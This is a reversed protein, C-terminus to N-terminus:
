KKALTTPLGRTLYRIPDMPRCLYYETAETCVRTEFHIHPGTTHGTMGVYGIIDKTKVEQGVIMDSSKMHAYLSRVVTGDQDHEIVIYRGYGGPQFSNEIVVGDKVAYIPSGQNARIDVGPHRSSFYTSIGKVVAVSLPSVLGDSDTVDLTSPFYEQLFQESVVASETAESTKEDEVSASADSIPLVQELAVVEKKESSSFLPFLSLNFAEVPTAGVAYTLLLMMSLVGIM